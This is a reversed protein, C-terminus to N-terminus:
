VIPLSYNDFPHHGCMVRKSLLHKKEDNRAPGRPNEGLLSVISVPEIHTHSEGGFSLIRASSESEAAGSTPISLALTTFKDMTTDHMVVGFTTCLTATTIIFNFFNSLMHKKNKHFYM